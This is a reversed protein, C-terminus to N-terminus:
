AWSLLYIIIGLTQEARASAGLRIESDFGIMDSVRILPVPGISSKQFVTTEKWVNAPFSNSTVALCLQVAQRSDSSRANARLMPDQNSDINQYSFINIKIQGFINFIDINEINIKKPWFYQNLYQNLYQNKGFFISKM